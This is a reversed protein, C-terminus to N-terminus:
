REDRVDTSGPEATEDVEDADDDGAASREVSAVAGTAIEIVTGEAIEITATDGDVSRLTGYIGATMMVRDGPSLTSRLQQLAKARRSQPRIILLYFVLFIALLPLVTSALEPV